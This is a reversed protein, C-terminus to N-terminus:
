LVHDLIFIIGFAALGVLMISFITLNVDTMSNLKCECKECFQAKRRFNRHKCNPCTKRDVLKGRPPSTAPVAKGCTTCFRAGERTIAQGCAACVVPKPPIVRQIPSETGPM